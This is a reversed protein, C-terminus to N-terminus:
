PDSQTVWERSQHARLAPASDQQFVFFDGSVDRMVPLLQQPLFMDRYYSNNIKMGPHVFILDTLGLKSIGVSVM